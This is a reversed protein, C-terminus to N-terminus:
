NSFKNFDEETLGLKEIGFSKTDSGIQKGNSPKAPSGSGIGNFAKKTIDINQGPLVKEIAIGINDEFSGGLTDVKKFVEKITKADDESFDSLSTNLMKDKESEAITKKTLETIEEPSMGQQEEVIDGEENVNVGKEKALKKRLLKNEERMKKYNPNEAEKLETIKDSIKEGEGLELVDKISEFEKIVERKEKNADHGAQLDKVEDATYVEEVTGDDLIVEKPM